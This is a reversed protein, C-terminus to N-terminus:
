IKSLWFICPVCILLGEFILLVWFVVPSWVTYFNQRDFCNHFVDLMGQAQGQEQATIQAIAQQYAISNEDMTKIAGMRKQLSSLAKINENFDSEPTQIFQNANLGNLHCESLANVFRDIYESKQQITSARDALTWYNSVQNKYVYNTYVRFTIRGASLLIGFVFVLVFITNSKM